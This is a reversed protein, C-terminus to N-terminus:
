KEIKRLFDIIKKGNVEEKAWRKIEDIDVIQDRTVMIAQELSQKDDWYIYAALRDKVCDTPSLIKIQGFNSSITNNSSDSLGIGYDGNSYVNNDNITNFISNSLGIGSVRNNYAINESILNNNSGLLGIGREHNAFANNLILKSNSVNTLFIGTISAKMVTCNQIIFYKSSNQVRICYSFNNNVNITVNEIIYPNNLTGNGGGFWTQSEAWTWNNTGRDNIEIPSLLEWYNAIELFRNDSIITNDNDLSKLQYNMDYSNNIGHSITLIIGLSITIIIVRALKIM